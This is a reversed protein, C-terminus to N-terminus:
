QAQIIRLGPQWSWAGVVTGQALPCPFRWFPFPCYVLLSRTNKQMQMHTRTFPWVPSKRFDLKPHSKPPWVFMARGLLRSATLRSWEKAIVPRTSLGRHFLLKMWKPRERMAPSILWVFFDNYIRIVYEEGFTLTKNESARGLSCLLTERRLWCSGRPHALALAESSHPSLLRLQSLLVSPLPPLASCVFRGSRQKGAESGLYLIILM